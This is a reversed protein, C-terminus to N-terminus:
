ECIDLVGDQDSDVAAIGLIRGSGPNFDADSFEIVLLDGGPTVLVDIARGIGSVFDSVV